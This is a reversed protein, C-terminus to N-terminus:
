TEETKGNDPEMEEVSKDTKQKRTQKLPKEYYRQSNTDFYFHCTASQKTLKACDDRIKNWIAEVHNVGRVEQAGNRWLVIINDFDQKMTPSGRLLSMGNKRIEDDSETTRPHVVTLIHTETRKCLTEILKTFECLSDYEKKSRDMFFHLHDLLVFKVHYLKSTMEVADEIQSPTISGYVDIFFLNRSLLWERAKKYEDPTVQKKDYFDKGLYISILKALVKKTTIESSAILVGDDANLREVVINLSFTSKGSTTEGTIITSECDRWGVLTNQFQKFGPTRGKATEVQDYLNDALHIVKDIAVTEDDAYNKAEKICKQIEKASVGAMLCENLDKLPLYVRYCRYKGLKKALEFAGKDGADDNDGILYIKQFGDLEEVWPGFGLAGSPVSVVNKMKYRRAAGRDYEGEVVFIYPVSPDILNGGYLHATSGPEQEIYYDVGKGNDKEYKEISKYKIGTLRKQFFTPFVICPVEKGYRERVTYGLQEEKILEDNYGRSNLYELAKKNELLAKHYAEAMSIDFIRGIGGEKKIYKLDGMLRKLKLLHGRKGCKMCTYVENNFYIYFHHGGNSDECDEFPCALQVCNNREKFDWRKHKCYQIIKAKM